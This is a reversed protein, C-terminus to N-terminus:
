AVKQLLGILLLNVNADGDARSKERKKLETPISITIIQM